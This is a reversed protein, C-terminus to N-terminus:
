RAKGLRKATKEVEELVRLLNGGWIKEIQEETYGRRVLERTVNLTESADDWGEVGGGGDFDSAIGVHDVGVLKVAYDIHDVFDAVSARPEIEWLADLRRNYEAEQEPSMAARAAASELGLEKRIEDRM